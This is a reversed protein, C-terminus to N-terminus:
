FIFSVFHCIKLVHHIYIIFSQLCPSFWSLCATLSCFLVNMNAYICVFTYIYRCLLLCMVYSELVLRVLLHLFSRVFICISWLYIFTRALASFICGYMVFAVLHMTRVQSRNLLRGPPVSYAHPRRCGM